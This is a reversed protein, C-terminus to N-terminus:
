WYSLLTVNGPSNPSIIVLRTDNVFMQKVFSPNRRVINLPEGTLIDWVVIRKHDASSIVIDRRIKVCRVVGISKNMVHLCIGQWNWIRVTSDASGSVIYKENSDLCYIDDVHGYLTQICEGTALPWINIVRDGGGSLVYGNNIQCCHVVENHGILNHLCNGEDSSWIKIKGDWFTTIFHKKDCIIDVLDDTHVAVRFLCRTSSLNYGAVTKDEYGVFALSGNSCLCKVPSFLDEAHSQSLEGLVKGTSVNYIRVIGDLAGTLLINDIIKLCTIPEDHHLFGYLHEGSSVDWLAVTRDQSGSALISGCMDACTIVGNHFRLQPLVVYRGDAWNKQLHYARIYVDKWDSIPSLDKCTSIFPKFQPSNFNPYKVITPKTTYLEHSSNKSSSINGFHLWDNRKCLNKWLGSSNARERWQCSCCASRSLEKATLYSFIRDVIERPLLTVFDVALLQRTESHLLQLQKLTCKQLLQKLFLTQENAELDEFSSVFDDGNKRFM